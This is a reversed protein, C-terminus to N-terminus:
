QNGGRPERPMRGALEGRVAEALNPDRIGLVAVPGRGVWAGLEERSALDVVPVDEEAGVRHLRARDRASGDAAILVLRIEGRRLAARTDRSGVIVNRARVGLGVLGRIKENIMRKSRAMRASPGRFRLGSRM